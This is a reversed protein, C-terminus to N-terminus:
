KVCLITGSMNKTPHRMTNSIQKGKPVHEGRTVATCGTGAATSEVVTMGAVGTGGVETVRACGLDGM